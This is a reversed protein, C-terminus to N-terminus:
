CSRDMTERYHTLKFRVGDLLAVIDAVYWLRVTVGSAM